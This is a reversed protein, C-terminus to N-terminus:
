NTRGYLSEVYERYKRVIYQIIVDQGHKNEKICREATDDCIYCKTRKYGLDVRHIKQRQEDYVDIDVCNGLIHNNEIEVTIKKIDLVNRDVLLTLNPGEGTIRLIKFYIYPSFIDSIMDDLTEIINNTIDNDRNKGPYNVKVVVLPMNYKKILADQFEIRKRLELEIDICDNEM